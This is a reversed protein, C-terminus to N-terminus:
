GNILKAIFFWETSPSPIIRITSSLNNDYSKWNFETIWAKTELSDFSLKELRIWPNEKLIMDIVEENEEPALTCTSYVLVWWKKLLPLLERLLELQMNQKEFINKVTWFGFTKENNSNIRWEASCPVDLLIKDFYLNPYLLKLNIADTKVTEASTVWQLNLNYNLKDFRIQNKECAVINWTNNIIAAIQSTKSWPAATADLISDWEKPEMFYIPLMSSIGQVYIKGSYYIDSWKLFYEHRKDIIYADDPLFLKSFEINNKNLFEEIEQPNSKITNVRFSTNRESDFAKMILKYENESYISRLRELLKAPLTKMPTNLFINSCKLKFIKKEFNLVGSFM